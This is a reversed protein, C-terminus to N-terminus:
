TPPKPALRDLIKELRNEVRDWVKDDVETKTKAAVGQIVGLLKEIALPDGTEKRDKIDKRILFLVIALVIGGVAVGGAALGWGSAVSHVKDKVREWLGKELTEVAEGAKVSLGVARDAEGQAVKSSAIAAQVDKSIGPLESEYKKALAEATDRVKDQRAELADQRKGLADIQGYVPSLDVQPCSPQQPLPQQPLPPPQNRPDRAPDNIQANWPLLYRGARQLFADTQVFSTGRTTAGDTGWLVAVLEGRSNLIPGGSDGQRAQGTVEIADNTLVALRGSWLVLNGNGGFGGATLSENQSPPSASLSVPTIGPDAILIACIDYGYKDFTANESRYERGGFSCIIGTASAGKTVHRATVVLGKGANVDVLTGTGLYMGGRADVRIRCIAQNAPRQQQIPVMPRQPQWQPQTPVPCTGGPPCGNTGCQQTQRVRSRDPSDTRCPGGRRNYEAMYQLHQADIGGDTWTVRGTQPDVTYMAGHCMPCFTFLFMAAVAALVLYFRWGQEKLRDM